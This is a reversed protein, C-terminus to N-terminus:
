FAETGPLTILRTLRTVSPSCVPERAAASHDAASTPAVGPEDGEAALGDYQYAAVTCMLGSQALIAELQSSFVSRVASAQKEFSALGTTLGDAIVVYTWKDEDASSTVEWSRLFSVEWVQIRM